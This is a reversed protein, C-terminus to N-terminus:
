RADGQGRLVAVVALVTAVVAPVVLLALAGWQVHVGFRGASAFGEVVPMGALTRPFVGDSTAARAAGSASVFAWALYAFALLYLPIAVLAPRVARLVAPQPGPTPAPVRSSAPTRATQEIPLAPAARETPVTTATREIPAPRETPLAPTTAASRPSVAPDPM